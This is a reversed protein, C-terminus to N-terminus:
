EPRDRYATGPWYRDAAFPQKRSLTRLHANGEAHGTRDEGLALVGNGQNM